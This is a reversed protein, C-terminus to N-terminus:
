ILKTSYPELNLKKLRETGSNIMWKYINTQRIGMLYMEHHFPILFTGLFKSELFLCTKNSAINDPLCSIYLYEIEHLEAIRKIIQCAKAAYHHGRYPPYIEYGINGAYFTHENHGVRIEIKGIEYPLGKKKIKFYYAPARFQELDASVMRDIVLELDGDTLFTINKFTFMGEGEGVL